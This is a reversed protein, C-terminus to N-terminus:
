PRKRRLLWGKLHAAMDDGISQGSRGYVGRRSPWDGVFSSYAGDRLARFFGCDGELDCPESEEGGELDRRRAARYFEPVRGSVEDFRDGKLEFVRPFSGLRSIALTQGGRFPAEDLEPGMTVFWYGGSPRREIGATILAELRAVFTFGEALRYIMLSATQDRNAHDRQLIVLDVRDPGTIPGCAVAYM